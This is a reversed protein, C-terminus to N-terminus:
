FDGGVKFGHAEDGDSRRRLVVAGVHVLGGGVHGVVKLFADLEVRPVRELQDRHGDVLEVLELDDLALVVLEDPPDPSAGRRRGGELLVDDGGGGPEYLPPSSAAVM